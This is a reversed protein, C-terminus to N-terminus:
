TKVRSTLSHIAEFFEDYEEKFTFASGGLHDINMFSIMKKNLTTNQLWEFLCKWSCFKQDATDSSHNKWFVTIRLPYERTVKEMCCDCFEDYKEHILIHGCENCVKAPTTVKRM